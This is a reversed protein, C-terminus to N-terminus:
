EMKLVFISEVETESVIQLQLLEEQDQILLDQEMTQDEPTPSERWPLKSSLRLNNLGQNKSEIM